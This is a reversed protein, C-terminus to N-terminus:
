RNNYIRIDVSKIMASFTTAEAFQLVSLVPSNLLFSDQNIPTTHISVTNSTQHKMAIVAFAIIKLTPREFPWELFEVATRETSARAGDDERQEPKRM